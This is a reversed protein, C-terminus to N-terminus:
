LYYEHLKHELRVIRNSVVDYGYDFKIKAVKTKWERIDDDIANVESLLAYFSIQEHISSSTILMDKVLERLESDVTLRRLLPAYFYKRSTKAENHHTTIEKLFRKINDNDRLLFKLCFGSYNDIPLKENLVDKFISKLIPENPWGYSLAVIQGTYTYDPIDKVLQYVQSDNKFNLGLLRGAFSSNHQKTSNIVRLAINKLAISGPSTRSLFSMLNIDDISDQNKEIYDMIYSYSASSRVSHRSFFAWISEENNAYTRSDILSFIDGGANTILYEFEEIIKKIILGSVHNNDETFIGAPSPMDSIRLPNRYSFYEPLSHTMLHGVYAINRDIEFDFGRGFILPKSIEIINSNDIHNFLCVSMEGKIESNSESPFEKLMNIVKEPLFDMDNLKDIIILRLDNALPLSTSLYHSDNDVEVGWYKLWTSYVKEDHHIKSIVYQKVLENNKFNESIDELASYYQGFIGTDLKDITPLFKKLIHSEFYNKDIQVLLPIANERFNITEDFLAKELMEIALDKDDQFLLPIYNSIVTKGNSFMHKFYEKLKINIDKDNNWGDYLGKITWHPYSPDLLDKLLIDRAENSHVYVLGLSLEPDIYSLRDYRKILWNYVAEKLVINGAFYKNLDRMFDVRSSSIFPYDEMEFEQKIRQVVEDNENFNQFLITWVADKHSLITIDDRYAQEKDISSLLLSLLEENKDFGNILVLTAEDRLEYPISNFVAIFENLNISCKGYMIIDYKSKFLKFIDNDINIDEILNKLVTKDVDHSLLSNIAFSLIIPNVCNVITEEIFSYVKKQGIHKRLAISSDHKNYITGNILSQKLLRIHSDNIVALNGISIVRYDRYKNKNPFFHSLYDIVKDKLRNNSLASLLRKLLAEKFLNDTGFEFESILNNYQENLIESPTNEANVSIEYSVLKVYDYQYSKYSAQTLTTFFNKYTKIQKPPILGFFNVVVQHYAPNAVHEVLFSHSFDDDSEFLHLAALFEQFLKHSFAIEVSSKEIIIGFNNAGIKLLEQSRNRAHAKEYGAYKILYKEIAKEAESKLIVGDNSAKQIYIALECFLEKFDTDSFLDSIIGADKVRKQPHKNILYQTIDKLAELKNKPLVSDRMKQVILISLLLPNEALAQLDGAHKLEKLFQEAFLDSISQNSNGLQKNWKSYWKGIFDKQQLQSFTALELVDLDKFFEKLMKFGYPRSSYLVSINSLTVMAEIRTIAQQASSINSWEDVGDIILFLREDSLADKVVDFLDERDFSKFWLKIIDSLNLSPDQILFKTIFAFPLWIPLMKGYKHSINKLTPDESLLDLVLYRLLISKGAGPDGIIINKNNELLADDIGIRVVINDDIVNQKPRTRRYLPERDNAAMMYEYYSNDEEEPVNVIPATANDTNELQVNAIIDPIIFREQITYPTQIETVPIGQDHLNFIVSYFVGLQERFTSVEISDLRKRRKLGELAIVGNFEKVWEAGFFDYVIQPHDKLIKSLKVKDWKVLEINDKKFELKLEEFKDQVETKNMHCSTCIIFKDSSDYFKNEKFKVSVNLLDQVCFEAYRKCQCSTYKNNQQKAYIDIGSQFQGKIGYIECDEKKFDLEIVALCLKEFDEWILEEFPLEQINTVIPPNIKTVVPTNLYNLSM